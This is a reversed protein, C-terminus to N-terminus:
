PGEQPTDSNQPGRLPQDTSSQACHEAPAPGHTGPQHVQDQRRQYCDERGAELVAKPESPDVTLATLQKM